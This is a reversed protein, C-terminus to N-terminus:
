KGSNENTFVFFIINLFMFLRVHRLTTGNLPGYFREGDKTVTNQQTNHKTKFANSETPTQTQGSASHQFLLCPNFSLLYSYLQLKEKIAYTPVGEM